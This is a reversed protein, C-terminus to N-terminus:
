WLALFCAQRHFVRHTQGNVPTNEDDLESVGVVDERITAYTGSGELDGNWATSTTLDDTLDLDIM